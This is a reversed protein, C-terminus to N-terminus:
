GMDWRFLMGQRTEATVRRGQEELYGRVLVLDSWRTLGAIRGQPAAERLSKWFRADEHAVDIRPASVLAAFARSEPLRSDYIVLAPAAGAVARATGSAALSAVAGAKLLSRRSVKM